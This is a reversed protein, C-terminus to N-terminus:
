HVTYEWGAQPAWKAYHALNKAGEKTHYFMVHVIAAHTQLKAIAEADMHLYSNILKAAAKVREPLKVIKKDYANPNTRIVIVPIMYGDIRGASGRAAGEYKATEQVSQFTDDIKGSECTPKRDTHSHEDLESSVTLVARACENRLIWLSDPFRNTTTDCERRRKVSASTGLGGGKREDRQDPPFPTGDAYTILPLLQKFWVDEWRENAKIPTTAGNAEAEAKRHEECGQCMGSGDHNPRRKPSLVTTKCVSCYNAESGEGAKPAGGHAACFANNGGQCALHPCPEGSDLNAHCSRAMVFGGPESQDTGRVYRTPGFVKTEAGRERYRMEGYYVTGPEADAPNTPMLPLGRTLASAQALDHLKQAIAAEVEIRKKAVADACAQEDDFLGVYVNKARGSPLRVSRDRVQGHWKNCRASWSVGAHKSQPRATHVRRRKAFYAEDDSPDLVEDDSWDLYKKDEETYASWLM